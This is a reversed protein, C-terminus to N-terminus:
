AEETASSRRRRTTTDPEAAPEQAEAPQEASDDAALEKALRRAATDAPEWQPRRLLDRALEEDVEIVDGPKVDAHSELDYTIGAPDANRISVAM